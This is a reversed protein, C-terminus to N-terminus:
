ADEQPALPLPMWAVVRLAHGWETGQPHTREIPLSMNGHSVYWAAYDGEESRDTIIEHWGNSLAALVAVGKPIAGMDTRWGQMPAPELASLIRAEYDAQAAAKAADSSPFGDTSCLNAAGDEQWWWTKDAGVEYCYDGAKARFFCYDGENYPDAHWELAKARVAPTEAEPTARAAVARARIAPDIGDESHSFDTM